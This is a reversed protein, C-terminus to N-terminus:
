NIILSFCNSVAGYNGAKDVSFVTWYYTKRDSFSLETTNLFSVASKVLMTLNKDAYVKLSDYLIGSTRDSSNWSFTITKDTTSFEDVPSILIPKEPPTTDVVLNKKSYLTESVSNKAKVGWSYIGDPLIKELITTDIVTPSIEYIGDWIDKFAVFTYTDANYLNDWGFRIKNSNMIPGPFNLNVTQKALDDTSLIYLEGYSWDTMFANNEARVRWEFVSPFLVKSFKDKSILTDLLLVESSDFAPTVIQLRYNTAGEIESWWFTQSVIDTQMGPTPSLLKVKEDSIDKEFFTQCGSIILLLIFIYTTKSTRNKM